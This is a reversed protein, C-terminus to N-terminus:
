CYPPRAWAMPMASRMFCMRHDASLVINCRALPNPLKVELTMVGQEFQINSRALAQPTPQTGNSPNPAPLAPLLAIENNSLDINGFISAWNPKM